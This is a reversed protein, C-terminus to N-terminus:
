QVPLYHLLEPLEKITIVNDLSSENYPDFLIPIM